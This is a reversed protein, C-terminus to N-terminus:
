GMNSRHWSGRVNNDGEWPVRAPDGGGTTILGRSGRPPFTCHRHKSTIIAYRERSALGWIPGADANIDQRGRVVSSVGLM